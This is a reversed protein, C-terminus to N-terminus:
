AAGAEAPPEAHAVPLTFHFVTGLGVTSDSWVKGGHESIITRCISLGVGMGEPKTTVFPKFLNRRVEEPLGPGTDAVSIQVWGGEGSASVLLERRPSAAMAEIANRMLNVLVQQVQVKDVALDPLNPAVRTELRVSGSITGLLLVSDEILGTVPEIGRVSERKDVFSRLRGVIEVARRVQAGSKQLNETVKPLAGAGAVEQHRNAAELYTIAATLPQKIEHALMSATQGITTMRDMHHLETQLERIRNQGRERQLLAIGIVAVVMGIAGTILALASFLSATSKAEDNRAQLLEVEKARFQDLRSRIERRLAQGAEVQQPAYLATRTAQDAAIATEFRDIRREVLPRLEAVLQAQEPNDAVLRALGDLDAGIAHRSDLYAIRYQDNNTLIYARVSSEADVLANDLDTVQLLVGETHEVWQISERLRNQNIVLMAAGGILLLAALGILGVGQYWPRGHGNARPRDTIRRDAAPSNAEAVTAGWGEAAM